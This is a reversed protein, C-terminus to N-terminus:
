FAYTFPSIDYTLTAGGGPNQDAVRLPSAHQTASEKEEPSLDLEFCHEVIRTVPEASSGM